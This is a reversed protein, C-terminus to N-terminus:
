SPSEFEKFPTPLLGLVLAKRQIEAPLDRAAMIQTVKTVAADLFEANSNPRRGTRAFYSVLLGIAQQILNIPLFEEPMLPELDVSYAKGTWAAFAQQVFLWLPLTESRGAHNRDVPGNTLRFWDTCLYECVAARKAFWDDVTDIGLDKLMERRVQFEVRSAYPTWYGWRYAVVAAIKEPVLNSERCKDYVRLKLHDQGVVFGTPTRGSSYVASSSAVIHDEYDYTSKARARTVSHGAAFPDTLATIKMEPIDVCPDVRSLKNRVVECGMAELLSLSYRWLYEAGFQMLLLSTIRLNGNPMTRHPHPRNMLQILIGNESQLQWRFYVRKHATGASAGSPRVL